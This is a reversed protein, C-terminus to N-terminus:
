RFVLARDLNVFLDGLKRSNKCVSAGESFLVQLFASWRHEHEVAAVPSAHAHDLEALEFAMELFELVSLVRDLDHRNGRIIALISLFRLRLEGVQLHNRVRILLHGLREIDEVRSNSGAALVYRGRCGNQHVALSRNTPQKTGVAKKLAKRGGLQQRGDIGMHGNGFSSALRTTRSHPVDTQWLHDERLQEPSMAPWATRM